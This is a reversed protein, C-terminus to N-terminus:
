SVIRQARLGTEFSDNSFTRNESTQQPHDFGHGASIRSDEQQALGAGAFFKDRAGNMTVTRALRSWENLEVTSGDRGPQEFTFQEAMFPSREGAGDRLLDAPKLYGMLARQEQIFDAIDRELQLWLEKAGQLLTFEFAQSARPRLFNVHANHGCCMTVQFSHYQLLLKAAIEVIAQIHKRDVNRGQPLTRLINRQQHLMKYLLGCSSHALRDIRDGRFRHLSQNM